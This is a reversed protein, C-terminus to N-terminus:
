LAGGIKALAELSVGIRAALLAAAKRAAEASLGCRAGKQTWTGGAAVALVLNRDKRELHYAEAQGLQKFVAFAGARPNAMHGLQRGAMSSLGVLGMTSAVRGEHTQSPFVRFTVSGVERSLLTIGSHWEWWREQSEWFAFSSAAFGQLLPMEGPAVVREFLGMGMKRAERDPVGFPAPLPSLNTFVGSGRDYAFCLQSLSAMMAGVQEAMGDFFGGWPSPPSTWEGFNPTSM